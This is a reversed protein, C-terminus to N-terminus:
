KGSCCGSNTPGLFVGFVNKTKCVAKWQHMDAQHHMTIITILSSGARSPHMAGQVPFALSPSFGHLLNFHAESYLFSLSILDPRSSSTVQAEWATWPWLWRRKLSLNQAWYLCCFADSPDWSCAWGPAPDQSPTLHCRCGRLPQPHSIGCVPFM